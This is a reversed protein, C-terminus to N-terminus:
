SKKSGLINKRDMVKLRMKQQKRDLLWQLMSYFISLGALVVVSFVLQPTTPTASLLYILVMALGIVAAKKSLKNAIIQLVGSFGPSIEIIDSETDSNEPTPIVPDPNPTVPNPDAMEKGKFYKYVIIPIPSFEKKKVTRTPFSGM